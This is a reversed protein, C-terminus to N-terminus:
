MTRGRMHTIQTGEKIDGIELGYADENRFSDLTSIRIWGSNIMEEAYRIRIYKYLVSPVFM